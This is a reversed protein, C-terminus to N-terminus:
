RGRWLPDRKDLFARIGEQADDMCLNLSMNATAVKFAEPEPREVQDYFTKKGLALTLPSAAAVQRALKEAEAALEEVPVVKNVLGWELAEAASVWRGTLLMELARKRGVARVLPVAPTSCFLGIRMGPTAFRASASAVALDSAAVLQCGAATAVGQVQAVVPQPLERLSRMMATCGEFIARYDAPGRGVMEDLLHGACFHKGAAALLVVRATPEAAILACAQGLEAVMRESLANVKQPRNLTLRALGDDFSLATEQFDM